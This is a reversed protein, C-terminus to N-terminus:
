LACCVAFNSLWGAARAVTAALAPEGAGGFGRVFAADPVLPQREGREFALLEEQAVGDLGLLTARAPGIDHGNGNGAVKVVLAAFIGAAALGLAMVAFGGLILLVFRRDRVSAGLVDSMTGSFSMPM